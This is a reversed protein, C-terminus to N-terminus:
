KRQSKGEQEQRYASKMEQHALALWQADTLNEDAPPAAESATTRSVHTNPRALQKQSGARVPSAPKGKPDVAESKSPTQSGFVKHLADYHARAKDRITEAAEAVDCRSRLVEDLVAANFRPDVSALGAIDPDEATKLMDGVEVAAQARLEQERAAEARQQAAQEQRGREEKERAREAKEAELKLEVDRVRRYEPSAFLRAAHDNAKEWSDVGKIGLQKVFGDLDGAEFLERLKAPANKLATEREQAIEAERQKILQERQYIAAERAEAKERAERKEARFAAREAITPKGDTEKPKAEAPKKEAPKADKVPKAAELAAKEGADGDADNAAEGMEKEIANFEALLDGTGPLVAETTPVATM